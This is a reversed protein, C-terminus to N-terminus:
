TGTCCGTLTAGELTEFIPIPFAAGCTPLVVTGSGSVGTAVGSGSFGSTGLISFVFEDLLEVLLPEVLCLLVIGETVGLEFVLM